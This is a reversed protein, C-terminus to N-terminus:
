QKDRRAAPARRRPDTGALARLRAVAAEQSQRSQRSIELKRRAYELTQRALQEYDGQYQPRFYYTALPKRAAVAIFEELAAIKRALFPDDGTLTTRNGSGWAISQPNAVDWYALSLDPDIARAEDYYRFAMEESEQSRAVVVLMSADRQNRAIEVMKALLADRGLHNKGVTYYLDAADLKNPAGARYLAQLAQWAGASDGRQYNLLWANHFYEELTQPDKVPELPSLIERIRRTDTHIAVTDQKISDVKEEILGLRTGINETATAGQGALALTACAVGTFLAVRFVNCVRCDYAEAERAALGSAVRNRCPRFLLAAVVLGLVLPAWVWPASVGGLFGGVDSLLGLAAGGVPLLPGTEPWVLRWKSVGQEM